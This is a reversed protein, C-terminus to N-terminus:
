VAEDCEEGYLVHFCMLTLCVYWFGIGFAVAAGFQAGATLEITLGAVELLGVFGALMVEGTVTIVTAALVSVTQLPEPAALEVGSFLATILRPVAYPLVLLLPIALAVWDIGLKDRLEQHGDLIPRLAVTVAWGLPLLLYVAIFFNLVLAPTAMVSPSSGSEVFLPFTYSGGAFHSFLVTMVVAVVYTNLLTLQDIEEVWCDVGTRSTHGGM